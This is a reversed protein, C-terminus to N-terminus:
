VLERGIHNLAARASRGIHIDVFHNGIDREFDHPVGFALVVDDIRVVM